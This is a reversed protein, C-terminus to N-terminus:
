KVVELCLRRNYRERNRVTSLYDYDNHYYKVINDDAEIIFYFRNENYIVLGGTEPIKTFYSKYKTM